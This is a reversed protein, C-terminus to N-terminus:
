EDHFPTRDRLIARDTKLLQFIDRDTCAIFIFGGFKHPLCPIITIRLPLPFYKEVFYRKRMPLTFLSILIVGPSHNSDIEFGDIVGFSCSNVMGLGKLEGV